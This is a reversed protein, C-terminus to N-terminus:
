ISNTPGKKAASVLFCFSNPRLSSPRVSPRFCVPPLHVCQIPAHSWTANDNTRCEMKVPAGFHYGHTAHAAANGGNDLADCGHLVLMFFCLLFM